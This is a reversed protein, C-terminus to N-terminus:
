DGAGAAGDGVLVGTGFPVAGDGFGFPAFGGTRFIFFSCVSKWFFGYRGMWTGTAFGGCGDGLGFFTFSSNSSHCPISVSDYYYSLDKFMSISNSSKKGM